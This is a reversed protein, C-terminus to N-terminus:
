EKVFRQSHIEGDVETSLIYVGSKLNSLNLEARSDRIEQALIQQGTITYVSVQNIIGAGKLNVNLIDNVPSPYIVIREALKTENLNMGKFHYNATDSNAPYVINGNAAIAAVSVNLEAVNSDSTTVRFSETFSVLVSDDPALSLGKRELKYSNRCFWRGDDVSHILTISDLQNLSKNKVWIDVEGDIEYRYYTTDTGIVEIANGVINASKISAQLEIEGFTEAKQNLPYVELHTQCTNAPSSIAVTNGDLSCQINPYGSLNGTRVSDIAVSFPYQGSLVIYRGDSNIGVIGDDSMEIKSIPFGATDEIFYTHQLALDDKQFFSLKSFSGPTTGHLVCVSTDAFEYSQYVDSGNIGLVNNVSYEISDGLDVIVFDWLGSYDRRQLLVSDEKLFIAYKTDTSDKLYYQIENLQEDWIAVSINRYVLVRNEAIPEARTWLASASDTKMKLDLFNLSTDVRAVFGYKYISYTLTDVSIGAVIFSSDSERKITSIIRIMTDQIMPVEKVFEGFRNYKVLSTMDSSNITYVSGNNLELEYVNKDFNTLSRNFKQGFVSLSFCLFLALFSIPTKM